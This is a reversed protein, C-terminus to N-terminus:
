LSAENPNFIQFLSVQKPTHHGLLFDRDHNTLLNVLTQSEHREKEERELEELREGTFPFARVGFRYVIEVGERLMAEDKLSNPQLIILCPIGEVDFRRNLAKKSELDSFPVALWPMSAYYNHFADLDEDSSVFVVEFESGNTKLQDYTNALVQTFNRCPIYWNASFYLGIVKGELDSVNVQSHFFFFDYAM